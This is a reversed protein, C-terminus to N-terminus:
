KQPFKMVVSKSFFIQSVQLFKNGRLFRKDKSDHFHDRNNSSTTLFCIIEDLIVLSSLLLIQIEHFFENQFIYTCITTTMAITISGGKRMGVASVCMCVFVCVCVCVCMCVCACVRVNEGWIM